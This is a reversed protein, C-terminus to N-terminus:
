VHSRVHERHLIRPQAKQHSAPQATEELSPTWSLESSAPLRRPSPQCSFQLSALVCHSQMSHSGEQKGIHWITIHTQRDTQRDTQKNTYLGAKFMILSCQLLPHIGQNHFNSRKLLGHFQPASLFHTYHIAPTSTPLLLYEQIYINNCQVYTLVYM